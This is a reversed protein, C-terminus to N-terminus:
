VSVHTAIAFPSSKELVEANGDHIVATMHSTLFSRGILSSCVDQCTNILTDKDVHEGKLHKNIWVCVNSRNQGTHM